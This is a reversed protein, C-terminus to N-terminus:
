FNVKRVSGDSMRVINIGKQLGNTKMGSLNYTEVPITGNSLSTVADIIPDDPIVHTGGNIKLSITLDENEVIDTITIGMKGGTFVADSSLSTGGAPYLDTRLSTYYDEDRTLSLKGDAPVPTFRQHSLSTNVRNTSWPSSNYDVHTILLGHCTGFRQVESNGSHIGFRYDFGLNQRNELIFYENENAPNVIKYGKGGVEQPNITLTLATDAALVELPRWGMFDREYTSYCCPMTGLSQYNGSDMVDFMDMGFSTDSKSTNYLDPLGLGHSIEHVITGIGDQHGNYVENTCGYAGFTITKEDVTVNLSSVSEKPWITNPDDISSDNEGYGAYIFFVFDVKGDGNNDFDDWKIDNGEIALKCAESYFASINVDAGERGSGNSGYFAYGNQLTVPGIVKFEPQFLSDSQEIFYDSVAGYMIGSVRHPEGPIGSGNFTKHFVENVQEDGEASIFKLDDFQVLVVPIKPNGTCPLPATARSGIRHQLAGEANVKSYDTVNQVHKRMGNVGQAFSAVSVLVAM